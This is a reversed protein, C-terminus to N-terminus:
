AAAQASEHARLKGEAKALAGEVREAISAGRNDRGLLVRTHAACLNEAERCLAILEQAWARFEAAADPRPELVKALTPHFRVMDRTLWRLLLPLRMYMLTDDVHLTRTARHLALVSSFHVNEDSSVFDVGRPVTFTFDDSFLEQAAADEIRREDWPLSALKAHHRSTGFLTAKPFREHASAVHLTHFPHLHLVAELEAGDGTLAAIWQQVEASFDCADLLVFSGNGRRVLSAHTGIDIIGAIKFSGRINWFGDAVEIVQAPLTSPLTDASM